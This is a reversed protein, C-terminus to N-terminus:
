KQACHRRKSFIRRKMTSKRCNTGIRNNNNNSAGHTAM